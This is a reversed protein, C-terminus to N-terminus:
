CLTRAEFETITGIAPGVDTFKRASRTDTDTGGSIGSNVQLDSDYIDFQELNSTQRAGGSTGKGGSRWVSGTLPRWPNEPNGAGKLKRDQRNHVSDNACHSPLKNQHTQNTNLAQNYWLRM